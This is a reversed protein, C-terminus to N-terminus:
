HDSLQTALLGAADHDFHKVARTGRKDDVFLSANDDVSCMSNFSGSRSCLFEHQAETEIIGAQFGFETGNNGGKFETLGQEDLTDDTIKASSAGMEIFAEPTGDNIVCTVVEEEVHPWVSPAHCSICTVAVHHSHSSHEPFTSECFAFKENFANSGAKGGM